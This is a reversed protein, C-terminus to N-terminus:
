RWLYTSLSEKGLYFAKVKILKASDPVAVPATWVPSSATPESGDLTYCVKEGP